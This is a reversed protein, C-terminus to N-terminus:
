SLLDALMTNLDDMAYGCTVRHTESSSALHNYMQLNDHQM